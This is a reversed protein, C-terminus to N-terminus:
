WECTHDRVCPVWVHSVCHPVYVHPVCVLRKKFEKMQVSLMSDSARTCVDTMRPQLIARLGSVVQVFIKKKLIIKFFFILHQLLILSYSKFTKLQFNRTECGLRFTQSTINGRGHSHVCLAKRDCCCPPKHSKPCHRLGKTDEYSCGSLISKITLEFGLGVTVCILTSKSTQYGM